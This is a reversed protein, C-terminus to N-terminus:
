RVKPELKVQFSRSACGEHILSLATALLLFRILNTRGM